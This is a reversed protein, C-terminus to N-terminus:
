ALMTGVWVGAQRVCGEGNEPWCRKPGYTHAPRGTKTSRSRAVCGHFRWASVSFLGSHLLLSTLRSMYWPPYLAYALLCSPISVPVLALASTMLWFGLFQNRFGLNYDRPCPGRRKKRDVNLFPSRM